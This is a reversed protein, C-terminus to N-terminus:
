PGHCGGDLALLLWTADHGLYELLLRSALRASTCVVALGAKALLM